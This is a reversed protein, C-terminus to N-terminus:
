SALFVWRHRGNWKRDAPGRNASLWLEGSHRSLLFASPDGDRDPIAEMDVLVYENLPQSKYQKRLEPGIIPPLLKSALGLKKAKDQSEQRSADNPFGLSKNSVIVIKYKKGLGEKLNAKYLIDKGWDGLKMGSSTIEQEYEQATKEQAPIEIEKIMVKGEPFETYIHELNQPLKQFINEYLPGVYVKINENVEEKSTAIQEPEVEIGEVIKMIKSTDTKPTENAIPMNGMKLVFTDSETDFDKFHIEGKETFLHYDKVKINGLESNSIKKFNRKEGTDHETDKLKKLAEIFDQFYSDSEKIYEDSHKKIQQIEKIRVNYEITILPEDGELKQTQPNIKPTKRFSLIEVDGKKMKSIYSDSTGVCHNMYQSEEELHPMNLLRAIYYEGSDTQFLAEYPNFEENGTQEAKRKRMEAIKILTKEEHIELLRDFGGKDKDLFKPTEVIADYLTNIDVVSHRQFYRALKLKLITKQIDTLAQDELRRTLDFYSSNLTKKEEEGLTNITKEIEKILHNHYKHEFAERTKEELKENKEENLKIEFHDASLSGQKDTHTRIFGFHELVKNLRSNWGHFHIKKYGEKKAKNFLEPIFSFPNEKTDGETGFYKAYAEDPKFDEFALYGVIEGEENRWIKNLKHNNKLSKIIDHTARQRVEEPVADVGTTIQKIKEEDQSSLTQIKSQELIQENTSSVGEGFKFKM